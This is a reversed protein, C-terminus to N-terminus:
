HQFCADVLKRFAVSRHSIAHKDDPEMEGFTKDQGSAVFMPDYGFGREGRPPWVVRGHVQGVFIEVHGNPWALCLASTFYAARDGADVHKLRREVETMAHLFNKDPGAWRASFIGPEGGLASVVLGSDDSLAPLGSGYSAALAKIRANECFSKGDELPEDLGLSAAEVM